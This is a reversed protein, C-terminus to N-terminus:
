TQRRAPFPPLPCSPLSETVSEDTGTATRNGGPTVTQVCTDAPSNWVHPSALVMGQARCGEHSQCRHSLGLREGGLGVQCETASWGGM